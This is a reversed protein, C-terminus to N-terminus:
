EGFWKQTLCVQLQLRARYLLTHVNASSIECAQCIEATDMELHSRMMFVRAQMTPLNSLCSEFVQWFQESYVRSDCQRWESSHYLDDNWEGDSRFLKESLDNDDEELLESVIIERNKRRLLDIIKNKLIAFIWTKLAAQGKFSDAYKYASVFAEQVADEALESNKLHLTAFKVMQLRIIELQSQPITKM